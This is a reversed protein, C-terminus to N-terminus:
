TKPATRAPVANAPLASDTPETAAPTADTSAEAKGALLEKLLVKMETVKTPDLLDFSNRIKGNRDVVIVSIRHTGEEVDQFFVERGIKKIYDLDGTLFLWRYPDASLRDAYGRLVEPNDNKPDCTISVIRLDKDKFEEEVGKLAQNIQWCPGPCASFFFSGVWVQGKLESSDFKRGSRETLTFDKVPPGAAITLHHPAPLSPPNGFDSIEPSEEHLSRWAVWSGYAASGVGALVIWFILASNKM